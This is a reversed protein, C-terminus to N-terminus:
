RRRGFSRGPVRTPTHGFQRGSPASSGGGFRKGVGSGPAPEQRGFGSSPSRVGEAAGGSSSYGSGKFGGSQVYRSGSYHQETFTGHSGYKPPAVPSEQGYYTRGSRMANQYGHYENIYVPQYRPGWFLERMLLYEPLWTWVSQGGAQSWYGYQNRGQEPTAMYAFGPPQAVDVAESDYLGADKHAISMGLDNEVSRYSSASVDAWNEDSSIQTKKAAVDVFHTKVTKVKERYVTDMGDRGKDLDVLIKDWSNYLQGSLAKLRDADTSVERAESALEDDIAVLIAISGTNVPTSEATQWQSAAKDSIQKLSALRADLDAKKAPWDQEAKQVTKELPALDFSHIQEYESKMRALNQPGNKEFDRRKAFDAEIADSDRLAAQRLSREENLLSEARRRAQEVGVRGSDKVLKDLETGDAKARNLEDQAAHLRDPMDKADAATQQLQRDAQQLKDHESAIQDRLNRPLTGCSALMIAAAIAIALSRKRATM